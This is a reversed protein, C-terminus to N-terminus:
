KEDEIIENKSNLEYIPDASLPTKRNFV